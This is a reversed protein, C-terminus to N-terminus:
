NAKRVVRLGNTHVANYTNLGERRVIRCLTYNYSNWNGGRLVKHNGSTPGTPNVAPSTSYYTSNYWDWCWENVNGSLDFTGIGNPLKHGVIRTTEGSNLQCWAVDEGTNSGAYIYDPTNSAGRAAYEWEAETPLRFGNESWNCEAADWNANYTVPIAGWNDPNTSGGISYVPNLGEVISRRNCYVLAAYWSVKEVPRNLDVPFDPNNFYSPNSGMIAVWQGQTVEYKGIYFSSLTVQHVPLEDTDGVGSTRGMSFTGGPLLIMTAPNFTINYVATAIESDYWGLRFAKAKITTTSSLSIPESYVQSLANPDTNDTTFRITAGNTVCSITISQATLYTGSQPNITPTAVSQFPVITISAQVVQSPNMGTKFAKAKMNTTVAIELPETYLPSNAQPETGNTTYRIEADVTPCTITLSQPGYYIGTVLSLVPNAVNFFYNGTEVESPTWGTVIARAKLTTNTSLNIPNTYVASNISPETGNTTYYIKANQTSSTITVNVPSSSTGANPNFVPRIAKLEYIATTTSSAAWNNKFAKAKLTTSVNITIPTTYLNSTLAPESGDTTYYISASPVQTSITVPFSSNFLGSNVDFSPQLLNFTYTATVTSTPMWGAKYGKAKLTTNGDITLTSTYIPSQETPETGDLTYHIVTGSTIHLIAVTQPTTYNGSGPAITISAVAFNYVAEAIPSPNMKSKFGRAKLTTSQTLQIPANYLISGSTPETGDTTYRIVAEPTSCSIQIIQEQLYTGAALNFTPKVVTDKPATTKSCSLVLLSAIMLLIMYRNM